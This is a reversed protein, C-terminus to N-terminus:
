IKMILMKASVNKLLLLSGDLCLGYLVATVFSFLYSVRFRRLIVALLVIVLLKKRKLDM